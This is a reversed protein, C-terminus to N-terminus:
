QVSRYNVTFLTYYYIVISLDVTFPSSREGGEGGGGEGGEGGTGGRAPAARAAPPAATHTHTHTHTCM